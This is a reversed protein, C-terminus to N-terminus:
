QNNEGEDLVKLHVLEIKTKTAKLIKFRYHGTEIITNIQPISKYHFLIFGALTEFNEEEPFDLKYKENIEDLEMRGSFVYENDPLQKEILDVTDHEDEIKGFIEELIDESTLMGTTGGFEDVVIAISLREKIFKQLLKNAPMTEPVILVKHLNTAIETPNDFIISHHMYGVVNDIHEDYILIRSYGTEIFKQHLESISTDKDLAVIETRPIMIERLKVKSFDLANRFLKVENDVDYTNQQTQHNETVNLFNDLDVRSFVIKENVKEVDENLFLKLIFKSILIMLRTIPYFLYYFFLIPFAFFKLLGNPNIRFLIKPLYEAVLIILSATLFIQGILVVIKSLFLESLFPHLYEAFAISGIVLALSNGVLMTAIFQGPHQYFLSSLKSFFVNQKKDLELRLKNASVYAIEMGSFFASFLITVFIIFILNM